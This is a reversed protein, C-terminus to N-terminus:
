EDRILQSEPPGRSPAAGPRRRLRLLLLGLLGSCPPAPTGPPLISSTPRVLRNASTATSLMSRVTALPSNKERSPGDPQPLVVVSRSIAPKSCGVLPRIM